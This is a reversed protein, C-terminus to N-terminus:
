DRHRADPYARACLSPATARIATLLEAFPSHLYDSTCKISTLYSLVYLRERMNAVGNEECGFKWTESSTGPGANVNM